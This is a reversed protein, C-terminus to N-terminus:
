SFIREARPGSNCAAVATMFQKIKDRDKVGPRREVGSSVDVGAPRCATVARAVNQPCLGGAVIVPFQRCLSRAPRTDWHRGTGGPLKGSGCELLCARVPYRGAVDFHPRRRVFLAKIVELGHRHLREALRPPEEGHLQVMNLGCYEAAEVIADFGADVFVGVRAARTGVTCCIERGQDPSVCRPSKAYFVMGVAAAGQEVCYRADDARTLGCIKVEIGGQPSPKEPSHNM